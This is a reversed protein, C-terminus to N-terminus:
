RTCSQSPRETRRAGKKNHQCYHMAALLSVQIVNPRPERHCCCCCRQNPYHSVLSGHAIRDFVEESGGDCKGILGSM